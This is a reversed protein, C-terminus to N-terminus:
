RRKGGKRSSKPEQVKVPKGMTTKVYISRVNGQGNPLQSEILNYVSKLNEFNEKFDMSKKGFKTQLMPTRRTRLKIRRRFNDIIREIEEDPRIIGYGKPQPKPMKGSQGLYRGLTKAINRMLPAQCVFADYKKVFKKKAKVDKKDLESLYKDDIVDYKKDQLEVVMDGKAVFVISLDKKDYISNPLLFERDIKYNPNRVDVDRLNIILDLTEDFNREKAKKGKKELVSNDIAQQLASELQKEEVIM